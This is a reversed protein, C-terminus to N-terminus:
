FLKKVNRILVMLTFFRFVMLIPLVIQRTSIQMKYRLWLFGGYESVEASLMEAAQNLNGINVDLYQGLKSLNDFVTRGNISSIAPAIKQIKRDSRTMTGESETFSGIPVVVNSVLATDTMFMDLTAIFELNKLIEVANEDAGVPDEGIVVAAKIKGEKIQELIQKGPAKIGMDIFGQSNSNSRVTIIGSHPKGIKGTIVAADAILKYSDATVIDDDVVIIAKKAEGYMKALKTADDCDNADKVYNWLTELNEARNSVEADKVYGGNFLAKVFSKLFEINNYPKFSVHAYEEMRTKGSSISVIKAKERAAYKMKVAMVPHNEDINGVSVILDTSYLEGYSNSSADYGLVSEMGSIDSYSM